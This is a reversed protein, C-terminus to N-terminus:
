GDAVKRNRAGSPAKCKRTKAARRARRNSPAAEGLSSESVFEGNRWYEEELVRGSNDRVIRAPGQAPDRHMVDDVYYVEVADHLESGRLWVAPGQAPDRHWQGHRHWTEGTVAGAADRSTSAPGDERHVQGDRFYEERLIVGTTVDREILAPGNTEERHFDGRVRYQIDEKGNKTERWAPGQEPNRHLNGYEAYIELIPTEDPTKVLVAPGEASPRHLEGHVRYEEGHVERDDFRNFFVAPGDSSDRHSQGEM